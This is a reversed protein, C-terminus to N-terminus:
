WHHDFLGRRAPAWGYGGHRVLVREHAVSMVPPHDIIRQVPPRVMIQRNVYSYVPPEYSHRVSAQRVLVPREVEHYVAPSVHQVRHAPEVM